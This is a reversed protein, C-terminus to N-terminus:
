VNIILTFFLEVESFGLNESTSPWHPFPFSKFIMPFNMRLIVIFILVLHSTLKLLLSSISESKLQCFILFFFFFVLARVSLSKGSLQSDESKTSAGAM